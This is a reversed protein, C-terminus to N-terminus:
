RSSDISEELRRTEDHQLLKNSNRTKVEVTKVKTIDGHHGRWTWIRNEISEENENTKNKLNDEDDIHYFQVRMQTQTVREVTKMRKIWKLTYKCFHFLSYIFIVVFMSNVANSLMFLLLLNKWNNMGYM